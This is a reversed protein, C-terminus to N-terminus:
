PNPQRTIERVAEDILRRHDADTLSRALVKETALLTLDAATRRIEQM